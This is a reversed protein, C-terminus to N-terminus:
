PGLRSCCVEQLFAKDSSSSLVLRVMGAASLVLTQPVASGPLPGATAVPAGKADYAVATVVGEYDWLRLRVNDCAQDWKLELDGKV